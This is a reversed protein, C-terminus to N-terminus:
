YTKFHDSLLLAQVHNHLGNKKYNRGQHFKHNKITPSVTLFTNIWRWESKIYYVLVYNLNLELLCNTGLLVFIVM